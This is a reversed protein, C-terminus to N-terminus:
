WQPSDLENERVKPKVRLLWDDEQLPAGPLNYLPHTLLVELMTLNPKLPTLHFRKLVSCAPEM